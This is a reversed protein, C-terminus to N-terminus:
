DPIVLRFSTGIGTSNPPYSDRFTVRCAIASSHGDGNRIVKRSGSPAGTPNNQIGSQYSGYWDYCWEHANGSMDYLGLENPRKKAVVNTYGICNKSFWAVEDVDNSGSYLYGRSKEGGRAAYEWEAETPLRGGAWECYKNAGYWTVMEMPYGIHMQQGFRNRELDWTGDVYALHLYTESLEILKHGNLTGDSGINLDNLFVAYQENTILTKSMKFDNVMVPHQPREEDLCKQFLSNKELYIDQNPNSGMTFTGGVIDEMEPPKVMIPSVNREHNISPSPQISKTSNNSNSANLVVILVIVIFIIILWM